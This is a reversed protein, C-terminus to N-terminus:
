NAEQKQYFFSYQLQCYHIQIDLDYKDELSVEFIIKKMPSCLGVIPM